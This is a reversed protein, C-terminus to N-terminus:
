SSVFVLGGPFLNGLFPPKELVNRSGGGRRLARDNKPARIGTAM